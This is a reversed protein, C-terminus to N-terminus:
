IKTDVLKTKVLTNVCKIIAKEDFKCEEHLEEQTGHHIFEDLIGLRKIKSSYNNDSMFELIASGFGGKLCGDELTIIHKYKKFIYNVM